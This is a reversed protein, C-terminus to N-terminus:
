YLLFDCSYPLVFNVIISINDVKHKHSFSSDMGMVHAFNVSSQWFYTNKGIFLWNRLLYIFQKALFDLYFSSFLLMDVKFQIDKWQFGVLQETQPGLQLHGNRYGSDQKLVIAKLRISLSVQCM